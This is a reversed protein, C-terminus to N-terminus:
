VDLDHLYFVLSTPININKLMVHSDVETFKYNHINIVLEYNVIPISTEYLYVDIFDRIDGITVDGHFKKIVKSGTPMNIKINYSNESSMSEIRKKKDDIWMKKSLAELEETEKEFRRKEMNEIDAKMTEEYVLQQEDRLIRTEFIEAAKKDKELELSKRIAEIIDNDNPEQLGVQKKRSRHSECYKGRPISEYECGPKQCIKSM